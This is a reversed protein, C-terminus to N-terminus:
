VAAAVVSENYKRVEDIIAQRLPQLRSMDCHRVYQYKWHERALGISVNLKEKTYSNIYPILYDKGSVYKMLNDHTSPYATEKAHLAEDFKAEAVGTAIIKNRIDESEADVLAQNLKGNKVFQSADKLHFFGIHEKSLAFHHFLHMFPDQVEQMMSQYDVLTKLEAMEHTGDLNDYVEYYANEDIIFNEICYGDHIYLHAVPTKPTTMLYFDGDIIYLKPYPSKDRQCERVVSDCDGLQHVDKIRIGTGDMLREFLAVYFKHDKPKDETYIDISNRYRYFVSGAVTAEATRTLEM